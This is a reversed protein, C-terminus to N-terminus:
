YSPSLFMVLNECKEQVTWSMISKRKLSEWMRENSVIQRNTQHRSNLEQQLLEFFSLKAEHVCLSRCCRMMFGCLRTLKSLHYPAPM